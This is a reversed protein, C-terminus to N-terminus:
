VVGAVAAQGAGAVIVIASPVVEFPPNVPSTANLAVPLGAPVVTLKEGLVIATPPLVSTVRLPALVRLAPVYLIVTVPVVVPAGVRVARRLKVTCGPVPGAM